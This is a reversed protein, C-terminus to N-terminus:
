YTGFKVELCDADKIRQNKKVRRIPLSDTRNRLNNFNSKDIVKVKQYRSEDGPIREAITTINDSSANEVVSKALNQLDTPNRVEEEFMSKVVEHAWTNPSSSRQLARKVDFEVKVTKKGTTTDYGIVESYLKSNEQM